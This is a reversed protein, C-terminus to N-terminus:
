LCSCVSPDDTGVGTQKSDGYGMFGVEGPEGTIDGVGAGILYPQAAAAVAPHAQEAAHAAPAWPLLSM